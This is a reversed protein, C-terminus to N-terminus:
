LTPPSGVKTLASSGSAGPSSTRWIHLRASGTGECTAGTGGANSSQNTRAQLLSGFSRKAVALAMASARREARSWRGSVSDVAETVTGEAGGGGGAKECAGAAGREGVIVRPVPQQEVVQAAHRLKLHRHQRM